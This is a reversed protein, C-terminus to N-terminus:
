FSEINDFPDSLGDNLHYNLMYVTGIKVAGADISLLGGTDRRLLDPQGDDLVRWTGDLKISIQEDSLENALNFAWIRGGTEGARVTVTGFVDNRCDGQVFSFWIEPSQYTETPKTEEQHHVCSFILSLIM